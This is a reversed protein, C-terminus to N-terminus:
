GCLSSDNLALNSVWSRLLCLVSDVIKSEFIGPEFDKHWSIACYLMQLVTFVFLETGEVDSLALINHKAIEVM